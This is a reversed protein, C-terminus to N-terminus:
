QQAEGIPKRVKGHRTEIWVHKKGSTVKIIKKPYYEIPKAVDIKVVKKKFLSLLWKIFKKM